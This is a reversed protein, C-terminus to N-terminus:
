KRSNTARPPLSEVVMREISWNSPTVLPKSRTGSGTLMLIQDLPTVPQTPPARVGDWELIWPNPLPEDTSLLFYTDVGYPPAIEFASGDGLVIETPPPAPPFRNEVSGTGAPPYLLTSKGNSDIAFAYVYRPPVRPPFPTSIVRLVLEYQEDGMVGARSLEGDRSRRLGLTYPFRMLPPSELQQWAHIKRLSLLMQTLKSESQVWATHLPLGTQRRDTKKVSPRVWTYALRKSAYRGM